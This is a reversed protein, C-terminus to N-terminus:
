ATEESSNENQERDKKSPRKSAQEAPRKAEYDQRWGLTRQPFPITIGEEDFRTKIKQVVAAHTRDRKQSNPNEIWYRAEITIASDAFTSPIVEPSPAELVRNIESIAERAIECANDVDTDYSVGIESRLRIRNRRSRNIITQSAVRDNPIIIREGDANRLRTNVITIEVVTGTFDGVEIWDGIEFPRSFMLLFGALVAGLTERVALGAVVTILGAGLLINGIEVEWIALIALGIGFLFIIQTSRTIIEIQHQDVRSYGKGAGHIWNNMWSGGTYAFIVLTVTLLVRGITPFTLQISDWATDILHYQGWIYALFVISLVVSFIQGTRIVPKPSIIQPIEEPLNGAKQSFFTDEIQSVTFDRIIKTLHPIIWYVIIVVLIATFATIGIQLELTSLSDTVTSVNSSLLM